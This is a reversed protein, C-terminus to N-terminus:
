DITFEWACWFDRLHKDLPCAICKTKIRPDITRAFGSFEVIGVSKCPFENLKKRRRTEQVRCQKMRFILKKENVPIIDQENLYAYMRYKLAKALAKLGGKKSIDFTEMIRQAELVTFCRWAETDFKIAEELGYAEEIALFWSGDHALWNKACMKIIEILKAKSFNELKVM